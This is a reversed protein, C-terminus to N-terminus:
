VMRANRALASGHRPIPMCDRLSSEREAVVVSGGLVVLPKPAVGHFEADKILQLQGPRPLFAVLVPKVLVRQRLELSGVPQAVVIGPHDLMMEQFFIRM